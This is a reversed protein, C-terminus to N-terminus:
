KDYGKQLEVIDSFIASNCFISLLNQPSSHDHRVIVILIAGKIKGELFHIM